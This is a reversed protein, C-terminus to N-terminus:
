RRDPVFPNAPLDNTQKLLEDSNPIEAPKRLIYKADYVHFSRITMTPAVFELHAINVGPKQWDVWYNPVFHKGHEGETMTGTVMIKCDRNLASADMGAKVMIKTAMQFAANTDLRSIPWTYQKKIAEWTEIPNRQDFGSVTRGATLYYEYIGTSATGLMGGNVFGAPPSVFAGLLNSKTIPLAEPLDLDRAMRNVEDIMLRFIERQYAKTPAFGPRWHPVPQTSDHDTDGSSGSNTRDQAYTTSIATLLAPVVVLFKLHFSNM